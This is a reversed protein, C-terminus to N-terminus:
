IEKLKYELEYFNGSNITQGKDKIIFSNLKLEVMIGRHAAHFCKYKKGGCTKCPKCVWDQKELAVKSQLQNM